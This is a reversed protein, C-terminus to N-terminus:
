IFLLLGKARFSQSNLDKICSHQVFCPTNVNWRCSTVPKFFTLLLVTLFIHRPHFNIHTRKTCSFLVAYLLPNDPSIAIQLFLLFFSRWENQFTKCKFTVWTCLCFWCLSVSPSLLFPQWYMTSCFGFYPPSPSTYTFKHGWVCIPLTGDTYM